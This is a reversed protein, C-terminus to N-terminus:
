RVRLDKLGSKVDGTAPFFLIELTYIGAGLPQGHADVPNWFDTKSGDTEWQKQFVEIGRLDFVRLELSGNTLAAGNETINLMDDGGSTIPDPYILLGTFDDAVQNSCSTFLAVGIILIVSKMALIPTKLLATM